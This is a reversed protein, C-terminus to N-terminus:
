EEVEEINVFYVRVRDKNLWEDRFVKGLGDVTAMVAPIKRERTTRTGRKKAPVITGEIKIQEGPVFDADEVDFEIYNSGNRAEHIMRHEITKM